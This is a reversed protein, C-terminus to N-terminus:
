QQRERLKHLHFRYDYISMSKFVTEKDPDFGALVKYTHKEEDLFHQM